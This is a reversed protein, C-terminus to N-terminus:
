WCFIKSAEFNEYKPLRACRHHVRPAVPQLQLHPLTVPCTPWTPRGLLTPFSLGKPLNLCPIPHSITPGPSPTPLTPSSTTSPFAITVPKNPYSARLNGICRILVLNSFFTIPLGAIYGVQQFTQQYNPFGSFQPLTPYSQHPLAAALNSYEPKGEDEEEEEDDQEGEEGEGPSASPSSNPTAPKEQHSSGVSTSLNEPSSSPYSMNEPTPRSYATPEPSAKPYSLNEPSANSFGGSSPFLPYGYSQGSSANSFLAAQSKFSNKTQTWYFGEEIDLVM